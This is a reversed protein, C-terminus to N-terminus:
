HRAPLCVLTRAMARLKARSASGWRRAKRRPDAAQSLCDDPAGLQAVRVFIERRHELRRLARPSDGFPLDDFPRDDCDALLRRQDVDAALALGFDVNILQPAVIAHELDLDAVADL